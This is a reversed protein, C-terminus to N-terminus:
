AAKKRDIPIVKALREPKSLEPRIGHSKLEAQYLEVHWDYFNNISVNYMDSLKKIDKLPPSCLGREFNSIFQASTYKFAKAVDKQSLGSLKRIIKLWKGYSIQKGRNTNM